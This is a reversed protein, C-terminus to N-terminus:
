ETEDADDDHSDKGDILVSEYNCSLCKAMAIGYRWTPRQSTQRDCKACFKQFRKEPKPPKDIKMVM